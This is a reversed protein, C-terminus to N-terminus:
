QAYEPHKAKGRLKMEREVKGIWKLETEFGAIM